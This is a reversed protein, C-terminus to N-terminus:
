DKMFGELREKLRGRARHLRVEVANRSLNLVTAIADVPMEELYHLVIVERDRPPLRGVADRVQRRTEDDTLERGEPPSYNEVVERRTLLKLGALWRRQHTRCQNVTVALLWQELDAGSAAIKKPHALLRALVDQVVDQADGAASWGLLRHALRVLRQGYQRVLEEFAAHEGRRLRALLDCQALLDDERDALRVGSGHRDEAMSRAAGEVRYVRASGQPKRSFAFNIRSAGSMIAASDVAHGSLKRYQHMKEFQV